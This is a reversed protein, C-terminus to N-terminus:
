LFYNQRIVNSSIELPHHFVCQLRLIRGRGLLIRDLQRKIFQLASQLTLFIAKFGALKGDLVRCLSYSFEM